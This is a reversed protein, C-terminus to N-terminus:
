NILVIIGTTKSEVQAGKLKYRFVRYYNGAPCAAGTKYDKGDWQINKDTSEFVQKGNRDMITLSYFEEDEILVVFKDNLGDGNPSFTNPITPEVLDEQKRPLFETPRKSDDTIGAERPTTQVPNEKSTSPPINIGNDKAVVQSSNITVGASEPVKVVAVPAKPQEDTLPHEADDLRLLQVVTSTKKDDKMLHSGAKEAKNAERIEQQPTTVPEPQSVVAPTEEPQIGSTVVATANPTQPESDKTLFIYGTVVSASIVVTAIIKVVLSTGKVAAATAAAQGAQAAQVGQEIGQWVDPADPAFSEFNDKLLKDINNLDSM